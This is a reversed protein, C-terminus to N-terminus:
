LRHKGNGRYAEQEARARRALKNISAILVSNKIPKLLFDDAGGDLAHAVIGPKSVASLMLIPVNSFKRVEKCLELGDLGPVVLDIVLMDPNIERATAIGQSRSNVAMIDFSDSSLITRLLDSTERDDEVVLVRTLNNIESASLQDDPANISSHM